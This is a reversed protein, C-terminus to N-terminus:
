GKPALLQAGHEVLLEITAKRRYKVAEFLASHNFRDIENIVDTGGQELIWKSIEYAGERAAIHLITRNDYDVSKVNINSM